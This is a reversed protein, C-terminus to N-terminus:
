GAQGQKCSHPQLPRVDPDGATGDPQHGGHPGAEGQEAPALVDGLGVAQGAGDGPPTVVGRGLVGEVDDAGEGAERQKRDQEDHHRLTLDDVLHRAEGVRQGRSSDAVVQSM